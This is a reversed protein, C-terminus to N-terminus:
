APLRLMLLSLREMRLWAASPEPGGDELLCNLHEAVAQDDEPHESLDFDPPDSVRTTKSM